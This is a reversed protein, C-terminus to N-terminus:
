QSVEEYAFHLRASSQARAQAFDIHKLRAEILERRAAIVSALEGDGARYGALTLAVKEEALPVLSDQSRRLARDLRQYEALRQAYMPDNAPSGEGVQYRGLGARQWLNWDAMVEATTVPRSTASVIPAPAPGAWVEQSVNASGMPGAVAAGTAAVGAFFGRRSPTSQSDQM